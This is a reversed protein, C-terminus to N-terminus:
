ASVGKYSQYNALVLNLIYADDKDAYGFEKRVLKVLEKKKKKYGDTSTQKAFLVDKALVGNSKILDKISM